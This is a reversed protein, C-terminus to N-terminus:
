IRMLAIQTCPNSLAKLRPGSPPGKEAFRAMFVLHLSMAAALSQLKRFNLLNKSSTRGRLQQAALTM